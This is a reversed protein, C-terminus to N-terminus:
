QSCIVCGDKSGYIIMKDNIALVADVGTYKGVNVCQFKKGDPGFQTLKGGDNDNGSHAGALVSGEKLYCVSLVGGMDNNTLVASKLYTKLDIVVVEHYGRGSTEGKRYRSSQKPLLM